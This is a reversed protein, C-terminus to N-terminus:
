RIERFDNDDQSVALEVLPVEAKRNTGLYDVLVIQDDIIKELWVPSSHHVVEIVGHSEMIGKAENVDM